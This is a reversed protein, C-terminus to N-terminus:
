PAIFIGVRRTKTKLVHNEDWEVIDDSQWRCCGRNSEFGAAGNMPDRFFCYNFDVIFLDVIAV